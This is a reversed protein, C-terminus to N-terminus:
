KSQTGISSCVSCYGHLDVLHSSIFILRYIKRFSRGHLILFRIICVNTRISRFTKRFVVNELSKEQFSDCEILEVEYASTCNMERFKPMFVLATITSAITWSIALIVLWDLSERESVIRAFGEEGQYIYMTGYIYVESPTGLLTIASLFSVM